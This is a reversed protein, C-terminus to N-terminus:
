PTITPAGTPQIEVECSYVDEQDAVRGVKVILANFAIIESGAPDEITMAVASNANFATNIAAHTAHSKDWNLTAKFSNLKRKGTDIFTAWGGTADHATTEAIMKEFEPFEVKTVGAVVTLAASVTIKLKAGFGGQFSM